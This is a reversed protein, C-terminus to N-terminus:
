QGNSGPERYSGTSPYPPREQKGSRSLEPNVGSERLRYRASVLVRTSVAAFGFIHYLSFWVHFGHVAL